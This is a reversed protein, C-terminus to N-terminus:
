RVGQERVMISAAFRVPETGSIASVTPEDVEVAFVDGDVHTYATFRATAAARLSALLSETAKAWSLTVVRRRGATYGRLAGGALQVSTGVRDAGDDVGSPRPLTVGNLIPLGTYTM